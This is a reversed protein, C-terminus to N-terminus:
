LIWRNMLPHLRQIVLISVAMKVSEGPLFLISGSWVAHFFTISEGTTVSLSVYLYIVGVLHITILGAALASLYRFWRKEEPMRAIFHGVMWAGMPFALLYGFTPQLVYGIGGGMSFVPVGSLGLILFILQSVAGRRRGLLGGAMYVFMTQLTIPVPFLPIRIFGGFATLAAFLAIGVLSQVSKPERKEDHEIKQHTALAMMSFWNVYFDEM